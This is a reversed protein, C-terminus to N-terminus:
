RTQRFSTLSNSTMASQRSPSHDTAPTLYQGAHWYRSERGAIYQSHCVDLFLQVRSCFSLSIPNTSRLNIVTSFSFRMSIRSPSLPNGSAWWASPLDAGPNSYSTMSTVTPATMIEIYLATSWTPRARSAPFVLRMCLFNSCSFDLTRDSPKSFIQM